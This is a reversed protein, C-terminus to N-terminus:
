TAFPFYLQDGAAKFVPLNDQILWTPGADDSPDNFTSSLISLSDPLHFGM